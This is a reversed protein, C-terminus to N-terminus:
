LEGYMTLIQTLSASELNATVHDNPSLDSRLRLRQRATTSGSFRNTESSVSTRDGDGPTALAVLLLLFAAKTWRLLRAQKAVPATSEAGDMDRLKACYQDFANGM